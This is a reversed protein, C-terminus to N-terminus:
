LNFLAPCPNRKTLQSVILCNKNCTHVCILARGKPYTNENSKVFLAVM